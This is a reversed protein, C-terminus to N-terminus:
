LLPALDDRHVVPRPHEWGALRLDAASSGAMQAIADSDYSVIRGGRGRGSGRRSRRLRATERSGTEIASGDEQERAEEEARAGDRERRLLASARTTHIPARSRGAAAGPAARESM